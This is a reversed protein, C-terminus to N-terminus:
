VWGVEEDIFSVGTCTSLKGGGNDFATLCQKCVELFEIKEEETCKLSMVTKIKYIMEFVRHDSCKKGEFLEVIYKKEKWIVAWYAPMEAIETGDPEMYGNGGFHIAKVDEEQNEVLWYFFSPKRFPYQVGHDIFYQKDAETTRRLVYSMIEKEKVQMPLFLLCYWNLIIQLEVM